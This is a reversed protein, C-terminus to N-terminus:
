VPELRCLLNGREDFLARLGSQGRGQLEDKEPQESGSLEGPADSQSEVTVEM